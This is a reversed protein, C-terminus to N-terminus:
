GTAKSRVVRSGVFGMVRKAEALTILRSGGAQSTTAKAAQCARWFAVHGIGHHRAAERLSYLKKTTTM